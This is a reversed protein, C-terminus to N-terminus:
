FVTLYFRTDSLDQNRISFPTIRVVTRTFFVDANATNGGMDEYRSTAQVFRDQVAFGLDITNDGNRLHTYTFGCPPTSAAPEALQSNYCRVIAQGTPQFPDFYVLAKVLGNAPRSQAVDGTCGLDAHTNIGCQAPSGNSTVNPATAFFILGNSVTTDNQAVISAANPHNNVAWLGNLDSTAVMGIDKSDGWVGATHTAVRLKFESSRPGNLGLVGIGQPSFTQGTMGTTYSNGSVTM